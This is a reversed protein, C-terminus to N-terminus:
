GGRLERFRVLPIRRSTRETYKLYFPRDAVIAAWTAEYDAGDLIVPAAWYAGRKVRVLVEGNKEQDTLNLYWAPHRPAGAFSAVVVRSGDRDRWYPLAVKHELGSRRGITRLILHHMNAATWFEEANGSELAAVHARSIDPIQERPPEFFETAAQSGEPDDELLNDAAHESM